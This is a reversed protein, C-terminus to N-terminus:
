GDTDGTIARQDPMWQEQTVFPMSFSLDKTKLSAAMYNDKTKFALEEYGLAKDFCFDCYKSLIDEVAENKSIYFEM